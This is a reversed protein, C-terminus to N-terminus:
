FLPTITASYTAATAGGASAATNLNVTGRLYRPADSPIRYRLAQVPLGITAVTIVTVDSRTTTAFSSSSSYEVGIQCVASAVVIGAPLAPVAVEIEVGEPAFVAELGLDIIGSKTATGTTASLAWTTAPVSADQINRAFFNSM